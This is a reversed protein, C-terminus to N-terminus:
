ALHDLFHGLKQVVLAAVDRQLALGREVGTQELVRRQVHRGHALRDIQGQHHSAVAGHQADAPLQGAVAHRQHADVLPAQAEDGVNRQVGVLSLRRAMRRPSYSSSARARIAALTQRSPRQTNSAVARLSTTTFRPPAALMISSRTSTSPWKTALWRASPRIMAVGV